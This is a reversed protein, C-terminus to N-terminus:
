VSARMAEMARQHVRSDRRKPAPTYYVSTALIYPRYEPTVHHYNEMLAAPWKYMHHESAKAFVLRRAGDFFAAPDSERQGYALALQSAAVPDDSLTNFVQEVASEGSALHGPMTELISAGVDDPPLMFNRFQSIWGVGQLMMLLKTRSDKARRFAYHMSNASTVTHIGGIGPQRMMLEGGMLHVADWVAQASHGKTMAVAAASCASKTDGDRMESMIELTLASDPRTGAWDHGLEDYVNGVLLQNVRYSQDKFAYDNVVEDKGFDLLGLMLSRLTAEAYQPGIAELTRLAHATFIIKHGINRYDRAGFEWLGEFLQDLNQSRALSVIARDAREEDWDEMAASLEEWAREPTPITGVVDRLVFDGKRVDEAQAKKFDDLAYFLPQWREEPPSMQSLYNCSHIIFVCHFKFGPPQPNVNRIGALFLAGLFQKYSLGAQIRAALVEIAEERPTEEILRVLPEMEDSFRVVDPLGTTEAYSVPPLPPLSALSAAVGVASGQMFHRRSLKAM